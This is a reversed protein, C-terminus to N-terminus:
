CFRFIRCPKGERKYQEYIDPREARLRKLFDRAGKRADEETTEGRHTLMLFIDGRRGDFNCNILRMLRRQAQRNNLESQEATTEDRNPSRPCRRGDRMACYREIELLRGSRTRKEYYQM